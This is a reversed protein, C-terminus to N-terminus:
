NVKQTFFKNSFQTHFWNMFLKYSHGRTNNMDMVFLWDFEVMKMINLMKYVEIM